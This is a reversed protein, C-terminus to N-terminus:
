LTSKSEVFWSKTALDITRNTQVGAGTSLNSAATIGTQLVETVGITCQLAALSSSVSLRFEPKTGSAVFSSTGGSSSVTVGTGTVNNYSSVLLLESFDTEPPVVISQPRVVVIHSGAPQPRFSLLVRRQHPIQNLIQHVFITEVSMVVALSVRDIEALILCRLAIPVSWSFINAANLSSAPTTSPCSLFNGNLSSRFSV